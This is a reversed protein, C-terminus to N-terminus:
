HSAAPRGTVSLFCISLSKVPRQVDGRAECESDWLCAHSNADQVAATIAGSQVRDDVADDAGRALEAPLDDAEAVAEFPQQRGAIVHHEIGRLRDADHLEAAGDEAGGVFTVEDGFDAVALGGHHGRVDDFFGLGGQAMELDAREDDDAAVAAHGGRKCNNRSPMGTTPTGLVM